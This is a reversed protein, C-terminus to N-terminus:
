IFFSRIGYKFKSYITSSSPSEIFFFIKSIPAQLQQQIQSIPQPQQLQITKKEQNTKNPITKIINALQHLDMEKIKNSKLEPVSASPQHDRERKRLLQAQAKSNM